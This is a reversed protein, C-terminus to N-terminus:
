KKICKYILTSWQSFTLLVSLCSFGLCLGLNGGAASLFGGVDYILTEIHQEIIFTNYYFFIYFYTNGEDFSLPENTGANEHVHNLNHNYYNRECPLPCGFSEPSRLYELILQATTNVTERAEALNDCERIDPNNWSFELIGPINCSIGKSL